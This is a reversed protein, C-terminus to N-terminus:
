EETPLRIYSTVPVRTYVLARIDPTGHDNYKEFTPHVRVREEIYAIDPLDDTSSRGALIDGIHLRLDATSWTTGQSDLWEGAYEGQQEIVVIGEGGLGNNPKEVVDAPLRLFDFADLEKM